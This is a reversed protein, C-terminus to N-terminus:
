PKFESSRATSISDTEQRLFNANRSPQKSKAQKLTCQSSLGKVSGAWRGEDLENRALVIVKPM